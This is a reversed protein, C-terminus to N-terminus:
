KLHINAYSRSWVYQGIQLEVSFHETSKELSLDVTIPRFFILYIAGEPIAKIICEEVKTSSLNGLVIGLVFAVLAIMLDM